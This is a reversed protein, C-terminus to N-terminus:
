LRNERHRSSNVLPQDVCPLRCRAEQLRSRRLRTQWYLARRILSGCCAFSKILLIESSGCCGGTLGTCTRMSLALNLFIPRVQAIPEILKYFKEAERESLRLNIPV